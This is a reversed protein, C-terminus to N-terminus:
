LLEVLRWGRAWLFDFIDRLLHRAGVTEESEFFGFPTGRLKFELDHLFVEDLEASRMFPIPPLLFGPFSECAMLERCEWIVEHLAPRRLIPGRVITIPIEAILHVKKWISYEHISIGAFKAHTGLAANFLSPWGLLPSPRPFAGPTFNHRPTAM